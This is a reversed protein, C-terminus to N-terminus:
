SSDNGSTRFPSLRVIALPALIPNTPIVPLPKKSEITNQITPVSQINSSNKADYLKKAEIASKTIDSVDQATQKAQSINNSITNVTNIGQAISGFFGFSPQSLVPNGYLGTKTQPSPSSFFGSTKPAPGGMIDFLGQSARTQNVLKDKESKSTFFGM